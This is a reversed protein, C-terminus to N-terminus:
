SSVGSGVDELPLTVEAAPAYGGWDEGTYLLQGTVLQADQLLITIDDDGTYDAPDVAWTYALLAPVGPQLWLPSTQDDERVVGEADRGDGAVRVADAFSETGGSSLPRTWRNELRVLVVLLREGADRDPIVGSGSLEDILVARLATVGLQASTHTEGAALQDLSPETAEVPALGGFAATVVLFAGTGIAAFWKTPVRDTAKRLWTLRGRAATAGESGGQPTSVRVAYLSRTAREPM